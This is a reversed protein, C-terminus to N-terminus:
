GSYLSTHSASKPMGLVFKPIPVNRPNFRGETEKWARTICNQLEGGMKFVNCLFMFEPSKESYSERWQGSDFWIQVFMQISQQCQFYDAIKALHILLKGDVNRPVQANRLHLIDLIIHLARRNFGDIEIEVVGNQALEQGESWNQGLRTLFYPSSLTLHKSSVKFQTKKSDPAIKPMTWPDADDDKENVLVLTLDGNPDIIEM